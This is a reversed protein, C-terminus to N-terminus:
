EKLVLFSALIAFWVTLSAIDTLPVFGCYKTSFIM